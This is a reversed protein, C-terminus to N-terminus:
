TTRKYSRIAYLDAQIIGITWSTRELTHMFGKLRTRGGGGSPAPHPPTMSHGSGVTSTTPVLVKVSKAHCCRRTAGGALRALTAGGCAVGASGRVVARRSHIVHTMCCRSTSSLSSSISIDLYHHYYCAMIVYPWSPSHAGEKPARYTNVDMAYYSKVCLKGMISSNPCGRYPCSAGQLYM